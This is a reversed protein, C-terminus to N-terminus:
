EHRDTLAKPSSHHFKLSFYFLLLRKGIFLNKMISSIIKLRVDLDQISSIIGVVGIAVLTLVCNQWNELKLPFEQRGTSFKKLRSMVDQQPLITISRASRQRGTAIYQHKSILVMPRQFLDSVGFLRGSLTDSAVATHRKDSQSAPETSNQEQRKLSTKKKSRVEGLHFIWMTSLLMDLSLWIVVVPHLSDLKGDEIACIREMSCSAFEINEPVPCFNRLLNVFSVDSRKPLYFLLLRFCDGFLTHIHSASVQHYNSFSIRLFDYSLVNLCVDVDSVPCRQIQTHAVCCIIQGPYIILSVSLTNQMHTLIKQFSSKLVM